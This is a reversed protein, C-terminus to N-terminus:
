LEPATSPRVCVARVFASCALALPSCSSRLCTRSNFLLVVFPLHAPASPFLLPATHKSPAGFRKFRSGCPVWFLLLSGGKHKQKENQQLAIFFAVTFSGNGEKKQNQQLVAFFAVATAMVKKKIEQNCFRM